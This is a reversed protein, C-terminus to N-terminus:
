KGPTSNQPTYPDPLINRYDRQMLNHYQDRIREIDAEAREIRDVVWQPPRPIAEVARITLTLTDIQSKLHVIEVKNERTILDTERSNQLNSTVLFTGINSLAVLVLTIIWHEQPTDQMRAMFPRRQGPDDPNDQDHPRTYEEMKAIIM